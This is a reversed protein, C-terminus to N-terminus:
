TCAPSPAPSASPPLGAQPFSASLSSPLTLWKGGTCLSRTKGWCRRSTAPPGPSTPTSTPLLLAASSTPLLPLAAWPTLSRTFHAAPPSSELKEMVGGGWPSAACCPAWPQSQFLCKQHPCGQGCKWPLFHWQVTCHLIEWSQPLTILCVTLLKSKRSAFLWKCGGLFYIGSKLSCVRINLECTMLMGKVPTKLWHFRLFHLSIYATLHVELGFNYWFQVWFQVSIFKHSCFYLTASSIYIIYVIINRSLSSYPSNQNTASGECHLDVVQYSLATTVKSCFAAVKSTQELLNMKTWNQTWNQYM